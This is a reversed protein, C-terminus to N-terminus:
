HYAGALFYGLVNHGIMRNMQVVFMLAVTCVAFFPTALLLHPDALSTVLTEIRGSTITVGVSRALLFLSLAAASNFALNLAFNWRALWNRLPGDRVFFIYGGVCLGILSGDVVGQLVSDLSIEVTALNFLVGM